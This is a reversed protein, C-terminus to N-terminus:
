LVWTCEVGYYYIVDQEVDRSQVEWYRPACISCGGFVVLVVLTKIWVGLEQKLM